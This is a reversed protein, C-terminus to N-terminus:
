GAFIGCDYACGTRRVTAVDSVSGSGSVVVTPEAPLQSDPENARVRPAWWALPALVVAAAVGALAWAAGPDLSVADASLWWVLVFVAVSGVSALGVAYVSGDDVGNAGFRM